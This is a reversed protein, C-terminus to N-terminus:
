EPLPRLRRLESLVRLVRSDHRIQELSLRAKRRWNPKEDVTGPVNQPERESWLDELNVLVYEAETGALWIMWRDIVEAEVAPDLPDGEVGLAEQFARRVEARGTFERALEEESILGLEQRLRLDDGRWFGAATATDHTNLSAVMRPTPARFPPHQGLDFEFLGVYMRYVGREELAERLEPTVTGLDEGVVVCGHRHAEIAVVALMEELPYHVYVGEVAAAGQPIWFLRQLSMAHDIRLLSCHATLHGLVDRLYRYGDRRQVEPHVPPFGWNQGAIFFGDPPAGGAVGTVFLDARRYTDFGDPHVGLPLDLYLGVGHRGAEDVLDTIQMEALWQAYAYYLEADQVPPEPSEVRRRSSESWQHWPKGERESEARFRAYQALHPHDRLFEMLGGRGGALEEKHLRALAELTRRKLTMIGRYDVQPNQRLEDLVGDAEATKLIDQVLPSGGWDPSRGPDVYFESWAVRTVPMYPSPAFPEELFLPFLPLTGVFSGGQEGTWRLLDRLDTFDGAGWSRESHLAYLPLFSGFVRGRDGSPVKGPSALWWIERIESLGDLLLQHCGVTAPVSLRWLRRQYSRGNVDFATTEAPLLGGDGLDFTLEGGAESRVVLRLPRSEESAPLTVRFPLVEDGWTVVVPAVVETALVRRRDELAAPVDELTRIPAGLEQLVAVVSEVPAERHKGLGDWYKTKIGYLEALTYLAQTMEDTM